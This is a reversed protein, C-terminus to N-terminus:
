TECPGVTPLNANLEFTPDLAFPSSPLIPSQLQSFNPRMQANNPRHAHQIGPFYAIQSAAAPRIQNDLSQVDLDVTPQFGRM